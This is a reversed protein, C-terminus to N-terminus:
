RLEPPTAPQRRDQGGYMNGFRQRRDALDHLVRRELATLGSLNPREGRRFALVLGWLDADLDGTHFGYHRRDIM